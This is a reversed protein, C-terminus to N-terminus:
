IVYVMATHVTSSEQHHVSISDSVHLNKNWFYIQFFNTCRTPKITRFLIRGGRRVRAEVRGEINGEIVQKLFCNRHLIHGIWNVRRGNIAHLINREGSSETYCM